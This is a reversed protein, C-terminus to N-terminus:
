LQWVPRVLNQLRRLRTGPPSAVHEIFIFRGGPRLVRRVERLVQPLDAVSCLALTSVVADVSEDPLPLREAVGTRLDARLGRRGAEKQLYPHMYPNPEVGVWQIDPPYYPLNAGTGPGIELVTGHLTGLLARKR